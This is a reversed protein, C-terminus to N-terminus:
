SQNQQREGPEISSIISILNHSLVKGNESNIKINLTKFDTTIFTVNWVQGWQDLNQLIFIKKYPQSSKYEKKQIDEAIEQVKEFSLKAKSSDLALVIKQEEKFVKETEPIGEIKGQHMIFTTITDKKKDYFGIQWVGSNLEDILTFAHTLYADKNNEKWEKFEQSKEVQSISELTM